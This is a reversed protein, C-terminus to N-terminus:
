RPWGVLGAHLVAVTRDFTADLDLPLGFGGNNELSVFGHLTSRVVRVAHVADDGHIGYEAAVGVMLEVAEQTATALEDGDTSRPLRQTAAYLGPRSRAFRRYAQACAALLEFAQKRSPDPVGDDAAAAAAAASREDVAGVLSAVLGRVGALALGVRLDDLSGVHKYLSPVRVGLRDALASLTVADLGAADALVAAEAVVRERSLGARPV